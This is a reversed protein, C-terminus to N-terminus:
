MDCLTSDGDWGRTIGVINWDAGGTSESRMVVVVFESSDSGVVYFNYSACAVTRSGESDTRTLVREKRGLLILYRVGGTIKGIDPSNKLASVAIKCVDSYHMEWVLTSIILISFFMFITFIKKM